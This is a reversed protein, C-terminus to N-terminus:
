SSSVIIASLHSLRKNYIQVSSAFTRSSVDNKTAHTVPNNDFLIIQMWEDACLTPIKSSYIM